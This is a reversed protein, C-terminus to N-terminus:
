ESEMAPLKHNLYLPPPIEFVDRSKSESGGKKWVVVGVGYVFSWGLFRMEVPITGSSLVVGIKKNEIGNM